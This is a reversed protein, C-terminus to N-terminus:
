SELHAKINEKLKNVENQLFWNSEECVKLEDRLATILLGEKDEKIFTGNVTKGKRKQIKKLAAELCENQDFGLQSKLITTCVEVDGIELRIEDTNGKIIEDGVEGVEAVLKIFQTPINKSHILDKDRGWVIVDQELETRNM